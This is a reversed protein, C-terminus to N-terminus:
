LITLGFARIMSCMHAPQDSAKSTVYWMTQFGMDCSLNQEFAKGTMM